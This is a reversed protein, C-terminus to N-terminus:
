SAILRKQLKCNKTGIFTDVVKVVFYLIGSHQIKFTSNAYGHVTVCIEPNENLRKAISLFIYREIISM